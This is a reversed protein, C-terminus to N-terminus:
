KGTSGFGGDGRSTSSLIDVEWFKVEETKIFIAQAVKDGKNFTYPGDNHNVVVVGVEGRYDSDILGPSNLVSIGHKLALGSKPTILMAYGVPIEVAFGLKVLKWKEPEVITEEICCLDYGNSNLTAASPTTYEKSLSLLGINLIKKTDEPEFNEINM